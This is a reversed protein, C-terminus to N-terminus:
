TEWFDRSVMPNVCHFLCQSLKVSKTSSLTHQYPDSWNSHKTRLCPLLSNQFTFIFRKSCHSVRSLCLVPLIAYRCNRHVILRSWETTRSWTRGCQKHTRLEITSNQDGFGAISTRTRSSRCFSLSKKFLLGDEHHNTKKYLSIHFTRFIKTRFVSSSFISLHIFILLNYFYKESIVM